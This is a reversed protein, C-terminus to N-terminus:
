REKFQLIDALGWPKDSLGFRQAPTTKKGGVLHYNYTTRFIELLKMVVLPSYANYGRWRRWAQSSTSMPRELVSLRRRVQMFYRDVAMLNARGLVWGLDTINRDGTDSLCLVRKEPENMNPFPHNVWRKFPNDQARREKRYRNALTDAILQAKRKGPHKVRMKELADNARSLATRRQSVTMDKNIGLVVLDATNDLIRDGFAILCGRDMGPDADISNQIRPIHKFLDALFLFHAFISCTDNVQVGDPVPGNAIDVREQWQHLALRAFRRFPFPLDPDGCDRAALECEQLDVDPDFNLHQAVIYGSRSEATTTARLIPPTRDMSSGWNLTYEQRDSCLHLFEHDLGSELLKRENSRAVKRCQDYIRDIRRYLTEAGIDAVECLRRM